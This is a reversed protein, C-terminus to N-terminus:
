MKDNLSEWFKQEEGFPFRIESHMIWINMGPLPTLKVADKQTCLLDSVGLRRSMQAIVRGVRNGLPHHDAYILHKVPPYGLFDRASDLIKQPGAVASLLLYDRKEIGLLATSGTLAKLKKVEQDFYIVPRDFKRLRDEAMKQMISADKGQLNVLFIDARHLAQEGERWRGAPFVRDWGHGLDSPNLLVLDLNRKIRLHQFGDDLVFQTPNLRLSWKAARIRSPDIIVKIKPNIGSLMLPEDGCVDPDDGPHVLYPYSPPNAMYGRSLVVPRQGAAAFRKILYSCMPTKGTGGMSINGVSVVPVPASWSRGLLYEQRALMAQSYIRGLFIRLFDFKSQLKKDIL